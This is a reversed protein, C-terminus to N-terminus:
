SNQLAELIKKASTGDGYPNTKSARELYVASNDLLLSAQQVITARDTGVLVANGADIAEPRETTDRTVLVPKGLSPAEEQIGGSDTIILYSKAMLWVFEEYPQPPILHVNARNGLVKHAARQVIPNLHVPFVIQVDDREALEGLALFVSELGGDFNERRHGTVLISRQSGSFQPFKTRMAQEFQANNTQRKRTWLLADIVTNGMMFVRQGPVGESLLNSKARDTPAFHLDAIQSTMRRNLEEPWPSLINGTRLGAEVHAVKVRRYFAALAAAFTTTTDGQVVVWDPSSQELVEDMGSLISSTLYPLGQAGKMVQLDFNPEIGFHDLVQRAMERHQGSLCLQRKLGAPGDDCLVLPAMKILEPRTGAVLLIRMSTSGSVSM